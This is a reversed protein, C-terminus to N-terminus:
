GRFAEMFRVRAGTRMASNAYIRGALWVEGAITAVTLAMALGVQWPEAIGEAIRMPMLTPALPPVVSLVTSLPSTPIRLFVNLSCVFSALLLLNAPATAYAVEEARSVLAAVAALATAYMLFGLVFWALYAVVYGIGLAPISVGKTLEVTILAATAEIALQLLAVLGIGLVKGALLESPRVTALLIEMIRTAKEEVVGQAVQSGASGLAVFLMLGVALGVLAGQNLPSSSGTPQVPEFPVGATVSTIAVPTLGDTAMRADEAAADLAIEVMAPLSESVVATPATASGSVAMDLTGAQVQSRGTAPDAVNTVKVQEGLAAAVSNFAPELAQSGSSFGVRVAEPQSPTGTQLYSAVLVSGAVLVVMVITTVTFVRSRLRMLVERRAVLYVNRPWPSAHDDPLPSIM